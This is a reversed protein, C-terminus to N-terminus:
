KYTRENRRRLTLIWVVKRKSDVDYLIRYDGIRLRYQAVYRYIGVPPTLKLFNKQGYPYPNDALAEIAEMIKDQLDVSLGSLDARFKDEVSTNPFKLAYNM